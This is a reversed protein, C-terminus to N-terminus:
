LFLEAFVTGAAAASVCLAVSLVAYRMAIRRDRERALALTQYAFSSVSTYSGLLGVVFFLWFPSQASLGRAGAYASLMGVVLSGSVNVLLTGWPFREGAMRTVAETIFHRAPGGILAGTAVAGVTVLAEAM